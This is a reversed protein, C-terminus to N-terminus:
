PSRMNLLGGPATNTRADPEYTPYWFQCHKAPNANSFSRGSRRRLDLNVHWRPVTVAFFIVMARPASGIEALRSIGSQTKRCYSTQRGVASLAAASLQALSQTTGM